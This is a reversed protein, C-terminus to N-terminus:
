PVQPQFRGSAMGTAKEPAPGEVKPLMLVADPQKRPLRPLEGGMVKLNKALEVKRKAVEEVGHCSACQVPGSREAKKEVLAQHCTVCQSHFVQKTTLNAMEEPSYANVFRWGDEEGKKYVAKGATEDWAKHCSGCNTKEGADAPLIKSDWHVFHLVNDMGSKVQRSIAEPKAQHCGRCEGVMPGAKFGKEGSKVHCTICGDHYIDKLESATLEPQGEGDLRNFTLAMEGKADKKHCSECSMGQDKLAKTHADHKFVAASQELAELKAITDIMIVDPRGAAEDASGLMGMAELHFGLVGVMAIATVTLRLIRKGNAM